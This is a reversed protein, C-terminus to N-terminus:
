DLIRSIDAVIDDPNWDAHRYVKLLTGDPKIVASAMSHNLMTGETWYDVGFNGAIKKIQEDKGTLFSWISLDAGESGAYSKLVAPSDNVPDVSISILQFRTGYKPALKKQITAFNHTLRPCMDPFPCRTYIFTIVVPKGQFESLKVPHNDQNTLEFDPVPQGDMLIAGSNSKQNAKDDGDAASDHGTKTVKSIYEDANSVTLEVDVLDNRTINNLIDPNKVHFEMTMGQMYIKGHSDKFDEHRLVFTKKDDAVGMVTGKTTYINSGDGCASLVIVGITVILTLIFRVIFRM